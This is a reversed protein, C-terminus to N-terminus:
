FGYTFHYGNSDSKKYLIFGSFTISRVNNYYRLHAKMTAPEVNIIAQLLNAVTKGSYTRTKANWNSGGLSYNWRIVCHVGDDPIQLNEGVVNNTSANAVDPVDIKMYSLWVGKNSSSDMYYLDSDVKKFADILKQHFDANTEEAIATTCILLLILLSFIEKM